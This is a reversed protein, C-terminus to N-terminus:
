KRSTTVSDGTASDNVESGAGNGSKVRDSNPVTHQSTVRVFIVSYYNDGQVAVHPVEVNLLTM